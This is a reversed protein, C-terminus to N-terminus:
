HLDGPSGLFAGDFSLDDVWTVLPDIAWFSDQVWLIRTVQHHPHAATIRAVADPWTTTYPATPDLSGLEWAKDEDTAVEDIWTGAGCVPFGYPTAGAYGFARGDEDGDGDLDLGVQLRPSGGGCDGEEMFFRYSLTGLSAVTRGAPMHLTVISAAPKKQRVAIPLTSRLAVAESGPDTGPARGWLLGSVAWTPTDVAEVALAMYARTADFTPMDLPPPVEPATNADALPPADPGTVDGPGCAALALALATAAVVTRPPRNERSM